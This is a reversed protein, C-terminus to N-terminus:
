NGGRKSEDPKWLIKILVVTGIILAAVLIVIIIITTSDSEGIDIHETDSVWISPMPEPNFIPM